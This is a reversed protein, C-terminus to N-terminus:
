NQKRRSMCKNRKLHMATAFFAIVQMLIVIITYWSFPFFNTQAAIDFDTFYYWQGWDSDGPTDGWENWNYAYDNKTSVAATIPVGTDTLLTKGEPTDKTQVQNNDGQADSACSKSGKRRSKGKKGRGKGKSKGRSKNRNYDQHGDYSQHNKGYYDKEHYSSNNDTKWPKYKDHNKGKKGKGKDKGKSFYISDPEGDGVKRKSFAERLERAVSSYTIDTGLQGLINSSTEEGLKARRLLNHGLSKNQLGFGELKQGEALNRRYEFQNLYTDITTGAKPFTSDHFHAEAYASTDGPFFTEGLADWISKKGEEPTRLYCKTVNLKKKVRVPDLCAKLMDYILWEEVELELGKEAKIIANERWTLFDFKEGNYKDFDVNQWKKQLEIKAKRGYDEERRKENAEQEERRREEKLEQEEQRLTELRENEAERERERQREDREQQTRREEREQRLRLGLQQLQTRQSERELAMKQEFRREALLNQEKMARLMQEFRVQNRNQEQLFNHDLFSPNSVEHDVSGADEDDEEDGAAAAQRAEELLVTNYTGAEFMDKAMALAAKAFLKPSRQHPGAAPRITTTNADAEVFYGKVTQDVGSSNWTVTAYVENEVPDQAVGFFVTKGEKWTASVLYVPSSQQAPGIEFLHGQKNKFM